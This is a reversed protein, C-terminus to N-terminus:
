GQEWSFTCRIKTNKFHHGTASPNVVEIEYLGPMMDDISLVGNSGSKLNKEELTQESDSDLSRLVLDVGEAGSIEGGISNDSYYAVKQRLSFGALKFNFASDKLLSDAADDTLGKLSIVHEKPEFEYNSKSSIKLKFNKKMEVPILFFGNSSSPNASNIM